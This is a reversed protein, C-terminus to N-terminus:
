QSQDQTLRFTPGAVPSHIRVITLGEDSLIITLVPQHRPGMLMALPPGSPKQHTKIKIKGPNEEAVEEVAAEEPVAGEELMKLQMSQMLSQLSLKM